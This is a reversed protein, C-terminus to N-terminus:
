YSNLGFRNFFLLKRKEEIKSAVYFVIKLFKNGQFKSITMIHFSNGRGILVSSTDRTHSVISNIEANYRTDKAHNQDRHRSETGSPLVVLRPRFRSAFRM